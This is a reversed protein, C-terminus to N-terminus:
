SAPESHLRGSVPRNEDDVRVVVPRHERAEEEDFEAYSVVIVRDGPVGERAAPGNLRVEGSGGPAEIVYTELRSGTSRNLVQVKEGPLLDAAEMLDRDLSISGEYDLDGGTLVAGHIKSKFLTRRMITEKEIRGASPV